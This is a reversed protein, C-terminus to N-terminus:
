ASVRLRALAEVAQTTSIGEMGNPSHLVQAETRWPAWITPNSPGYLVAVPIGFAAAMHAPGSDKGFFVSAAAL